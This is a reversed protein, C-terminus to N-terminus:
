AERWCVGSVLVLTSYDLKLLLLCPPTSFQGLGDIPRELRLRGPWAAANDENQEGDGGENEKRAAGGEGVPNVQEPEAREAVTLDEPLRLANGPADEETKGCGCEQHEIACKRQELAGVGAIEGAIVGDVDAAVGDVQGDRGDQM